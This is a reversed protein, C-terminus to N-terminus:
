RDTARVEQAVWDLVGLFQKKLAHEDNLASLM